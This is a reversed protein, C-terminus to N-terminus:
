RVSEDADPHRPLIVDYQWREDIKIFVRKERGCFFCKLVNRKYRGWSHTYGPDYCQPAKTDM